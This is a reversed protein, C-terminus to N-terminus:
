LPLSLGDYFRVAKALEKITFESNCNECKMSKREKEEKAFPPKDIRFSISLGRQTEAKALKERAAAKANAAVVRDVNHCAEVEHMIEYRGEKRAILYSPAFRM